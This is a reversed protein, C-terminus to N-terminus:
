ILFSLGRSLYFHVSFILICKHVEENMQNRKTPIRRCYSGFIQVINEHLSLEISCFFALTSELVIIMSLLKRMREQTKSLLPVQM